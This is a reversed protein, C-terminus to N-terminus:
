ASAEQNSTLKEKIRASKGQRGKMFYLKARRVKGVKILEIKEISPSLLPFVREVGVGNSVKRVSFSEGNTGKGRRYLVLGQFQQIREKAGEKIRVHVNITDGAKFDTINARKSALEQEVIKMLDAM